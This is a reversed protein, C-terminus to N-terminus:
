TNHIPLIYEIIYRTYYLTINQNSRIIINLHEDIGLLEGTIETVENHKVAITITKNICNLLEKYM